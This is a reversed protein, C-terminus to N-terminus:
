EFDESARADARVGQPAPGLAKKAQDLMGQTRGLHKEVREIVDRAWVEAESRLADAEVQAEHIIEDARIEAQSVLEDNSILLQAQERAAELIKSREDQAEKIIQERDRAVQNATTLEEPVSSRLDAMIDFFDAARIVTKGWLFPFVKCYWREGDEGMLELEDVRELLEM